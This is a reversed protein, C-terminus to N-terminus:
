FIIFSNSFLYFSSKSVHNFVMLCTDSLYTISRPYPLNPAHLVSLKNGTQGTWNGSPSNLGFEKFSEESSQSMYNNFIGTFMPREERYPINGKFQYLRKSTAVFIYCRTSRPLFFFELGWIITPTGRGIDYVQM